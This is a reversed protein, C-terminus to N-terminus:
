LAIKMNKVVGNDATAKVVYIGKALGELSIKNGYVQSVVNGGVSYIEINADSTLSLENGNRTIYFADANESNIGTPELEDGNVGSFIKIQHIRVTQWQGLPDIPKYWMKDYDGTEPNFEGTIIGDGDTGDWIRWRLSVLTEPDEELNLIEEFTYGQESFTTYNYWGAVTKLDSVESRLEQWEGDGYKVDLKVGRGWATSSFGWQVREVAPINNIEIYGHRSVEPADVSAALRSLEIFGPKSYLINNYVTNDNKSCANSNGSAEVGWEEIKTYASNYMTPAFACMHYKVPWTKGTPGNDGLIPTEFTGTGFDTDLANSMGDEGSFKPLSPDTLEEADINLIEYWGSEGWTIGTTTAYYEECQAFTGMSYATMVSVLLLKTVNKMIAM